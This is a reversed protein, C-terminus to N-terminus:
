VLISALIDIDETSNTYTRTYTCTNGFRLNKSEFNSMTESALENKQKAKPVCNGM